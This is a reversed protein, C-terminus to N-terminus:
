RWISRQGPPRAYISSPPYGGPPPPPHPQKPPQGVPLMIAALSVPVMFWGLLFTFFGILLWGLAWFSCWIIWFVRLSSM